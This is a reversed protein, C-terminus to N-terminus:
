SISDVVTAAFSAPFAVLITRKIALGLDVLPDLRDIAMLLVACILLTVGYTAGVRSYFDRREPVVGKHDYVAYVFLSIVVLSGFSLLLVRLLSLATSLNWIEETVAAPFALLLSGVAIQAIDGRKLTHRSETM